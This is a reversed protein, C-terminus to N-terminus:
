RGGHEPMSGTMLINKEELQLLPVCFPSEYLPLLLDFRPASPPPTHFCVMAAAGGAGPQAARDEAGAAPSIFVGGDSPGKQEEVADTRCLHLCGWVNEDGKPQCRPARPIPRAVTAERLM